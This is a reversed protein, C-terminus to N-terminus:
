SVLVSIGAATAVWINGSLDTTVHHTTDSVLGDAATLTLVQGSADIRHLGGLNAVYITGDTHLASLYTLGGSTPTGTVTCRHGESM